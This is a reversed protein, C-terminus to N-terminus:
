HKFNLLNLGDKLKRELKLNSEIIAMEIFTHIEGDFLHGGFSRKEKDGLNIHIHFPYNENNILLGSMSLLEFPGELIEKEYSVNKGDYYGFGVEVNKVMGTSSLIIGCDLVKEKLILKELNDKIREGKEMVVFIIGGDKIYKM